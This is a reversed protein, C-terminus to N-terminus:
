LVLSSHTHINQKERNRSVLRPITSEHMCSHRANTDFSLVSYQTSLLLDCCCTVNRNKRLHVTHNIHYSEYSTLQQNAAIWIHSRSIISFNMSADRVSTNTKGGNHAKCIKVYASGRPSLALRRSLTLIVSLQQEILVGLLTETSTICDALNLKSANFLRAI